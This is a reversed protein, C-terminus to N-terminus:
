SQPARSAADPARVPELALKGIQAAARGFIAATDRFEKEIAEIPQQRVFWARREDDSRGVLVATTERAVHEYIGVLLHGNERLCSQFLSRRDENTAEVPLIARVNESTVEVLLACFRALAEERGLRFSYINVSRLLMAAAAAASLAVSGAETVDRWRMVESDFVVNASGAAESISIAAADIDIHRQDAWAAAVAESAEVRFHRAVDLAVDDSMEPFLRKAIQLALHRARLAMDRFETSQFADSALRNTALWARFIPANHKIFQQSALKQKWVSERTLREAEHQAEHRAAETKLSSLGM